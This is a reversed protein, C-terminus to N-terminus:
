GNGYERRRLIDDVKIYLEELTGDNIITYDSPIDNIATESIHTNHEIEEQDPRIVEITFGGVDKIYEVENPFRIDPVSFGKNFMNPVAKIITRTNYMDFDPSSSLILTHLKEVWFDEQLERFFCGMRQLIERPSIGIRDDIVEKKNGFLQEQTLDFTIQAVAKLTDALAIREINYREQLHEAIADKGARAKGRIGIIPKRTPIPRSRKM